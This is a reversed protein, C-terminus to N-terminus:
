SQREACSGGLVFWRKALGTVADYSRGLWM